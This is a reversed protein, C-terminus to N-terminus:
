DKPYVPKRCLYCQVNCEPHYRHILEAEAVEAELASSYFRIVVEDCERFARDRNETSGNTNSFVRKFGMASFGIYTPEGGRTAAYVCPQFADDFEQRSFKVKRLFM